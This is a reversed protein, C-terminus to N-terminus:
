NCLGYAQCFRIFGPEKYGKSFLYDTYSKASVLGGRMLAQRAALDALDCSRVAPSKLSYDEVLRQWEPPPRLENLQWYQFLARALRRQGDAFGTSRSVVESLVRIMELNLKRAGVIDETELALLSQYGLSDAVDLMKERSPQDISRYEEAMFKTSELILERGEEIRGRDLMLKGLSALRVQRDWGYGYQEKYESNLEDLLAASARLNGEALDLLGSRIQASSLGGLAQSLDIKLEANAPQQKLIRRIGEAGETRSQRAKELNCVGLWADALWAHSGAMEVQRGQNEPELVLALQNYELAAQALFIAKDRDSGERAIEIAGLNTLTYSLEMVNDANKPDANILRRAIVGYYTMLKEAEDLNGNDMHVYGVWFEAQGLEFLHEMNSKDRLYLNVLAALSRNFAEMAAQSDKKSRATIGEERWQLAKELLVPADMKQFGLQKAIQIMEGQDEDLVDLGAVPSLDDLKGLMFSVLDETNARRNDALKQQNLTTLSLFTTLLVVSAVGATVSIINRRRRLMERRRLEDLRIGLIGAVLKLKGIQKGDAWKRVDAALPELTTGDESRILTSPFCQEAPDTSQPDGDVILAYIRDARGLEKFAKIEEKVWRSQAAAPSCIVVLTEASSLEHQVSATLCAASSLDERDRFVTGLRAPIEGYGTKKGVMVKPIRYKELARQLWSAWNEDQHSYSIFAKYRFGAM